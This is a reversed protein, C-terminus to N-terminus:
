LIETKKAIKVSELKEADVFLELRQLKWIEPNDGSETDSAETSDLQYIDKSWMKVWIIKRAKKAAANRM